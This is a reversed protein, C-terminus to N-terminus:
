EMRGGHLLKIQFIGYKHSAEVAALYGEVSDHVESVAMRGEAISLVLRVIIYWYVFKLVNKWEIMSWNVAFKLINQFLIVFSNFYDRRFEAQM